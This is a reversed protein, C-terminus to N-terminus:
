KMLEARLVGFRLGHDSVVLEDLGFHSMVCLLIDAGAVIVDARRSPLCPIRSREDPPLSALHRTLEVIRARSLRAGQVRRPDYSTMDQALACLTTPTGATAVLNAVQGVIRPLKKLEELVFKDLAALQDAAPPDSVLFRETLRVVGFPLSNEHVQGMEDEFIFETSGGGIDLVLLPAKLDPFDERAAQYILQAEREGSIIEIDIGLGDKVRQQFEGSNEARRFGATGVAIVRQCQFYEIQKKYRELCAYAREMAQPLFCPEHHIGEGLRVVEGDESLVQYHGNPLVEAILLLITNTGLDLIAIKPNTM